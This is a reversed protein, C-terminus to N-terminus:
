LYIEVKWQSFELVRWSQTYWKCFNASSLVLMPSPLYNSSPSYLKRFVMSALAHLADKAHPTFEKKGELLLKLIYPSGERITGSFPQDKQGEVASSWDNILVEDKVKFVNHDKIHWHVVNIKHTELLSTVMLVIDSKQPKFTELPEELPKLILATDTEDM